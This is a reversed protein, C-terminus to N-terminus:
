SNTCVHRLSGIRNVVIQSWNELFSYNMKLYDLTTFGITIFSNDKSYFDGLDLKNEEVDIFEVVGLHCKSVNTDESYLFYKTKTILNQDYGLEEYIERRKGKEYSSLCNYDHDSPNIHGGIGISYKGYLRDETGRRQYTFIFDKYFFVCYPILQKYQPSNEAIKRDIFFMERQIWEEELISPSKDLISLVVNEPLVLVQECENM